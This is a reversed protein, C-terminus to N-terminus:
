FLLLITITNNSHKTKVLPTQACTARIELLSPPNSFAVAVIAAFPHVATFVVAV